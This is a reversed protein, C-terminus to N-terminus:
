VWKRQGRFDDIIYNEELLNDENFNVIFLKLLENPSIKIDVKSRVIEKRNMDWYLWYTKNYDCEIKQPEQEDYRGIFMEVCDKGYILTEINAFM